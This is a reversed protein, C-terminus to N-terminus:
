LPRRVRVGVHRAQPIIFKKVEVLVSAPRFEKLVMEAVDVALTEILKWQRGDGFRSLRGCVADYNITAKLNDAAAAEKFDQSMELSLLLRQPTSREADTIGVHYYVELDSVIITDM